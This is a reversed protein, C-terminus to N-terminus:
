LAHSSVKQVSSMHPREELFARSTVTQLVATLSGGSLSQCCQAPVGAGPLHSQALQGSGPAQLTLQQTLLGGSDQFM